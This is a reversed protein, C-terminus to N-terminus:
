IGDESLHDLGKQYGIPIFGADQVLVSELRDLNQGVKRSGHDTIDSTAIIGKGAGRCQERLM